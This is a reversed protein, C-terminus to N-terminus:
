VFQRLNLETLCTMVDKETHVLKKDTEDISTVEQCDRRNKEKISIMKMIDYIADAIAFVAEKAIRETKFKKHYISRIFNLPIYKKQMQPNCYLKRCLEKNRKIRKEIWENDQVLIKDQIDNWTKKKKKKKVEHNVSKRIGRQNKTKKEIKKPKEILVEKIIRATGDELSEEIEMEEPIQDTKKSTKKPEARKPGKMGVTMREKQPPEEIMEEEEYQQNQLQTEIDEGLVKDISKSKKKETKKTKKTEFKQKRSM